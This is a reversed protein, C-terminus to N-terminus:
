AWWVAVVAAAVVLLLGSAAVLWWWPRVTSAPAGVPGDGTISVRTVTTLAPTRSGVGENVQSGYGHGSAGTSAHQDNGSWPIPCPGPFPGKEGREPGLVSGGGGRRGGAPLRRSAAGSWRPSGDGGGRIEGCSDRLTGGIHRHSGGDREEWRFSWAWPHALGEREPGPQGREGGVGARRRLKLAAAGSWRPPGGERRQVAQGRAPRLTDGLSRWPELPLM